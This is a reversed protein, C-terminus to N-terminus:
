CKKTILFLSFAQVYLSFSQLSLFILLLPPLVKMPTCLKIRQRSIYLTLIDLSPPHLQRGVPSLTRMNPRTKHTKHTCNTVLLKTFHTVRKNQLVPKASYSVIQFPTVFGDISFPEWMDGYDTSSGAKTSTYRGLLQLVSISSLSFFHLVGRASCRPPSWDGKEREGLFLYIFLYFTVLPSIPIIYSPAPKFPM